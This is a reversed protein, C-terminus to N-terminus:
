NDFDINKNLYYIPYLIQWYKRIPTKLRKPSMHVVESSKVM